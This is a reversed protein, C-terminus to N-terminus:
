SCLFCQLPDNRGFCIVRSSALEVLASLSAGHRVSDDRPPIYILDDPMTPNYEICIVRPAFDHDLVDRLVWITRVMSILVFFTSIPLSM